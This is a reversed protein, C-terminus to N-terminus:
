FYVCSCCFLVESILTALLFVCCICVGNLFTGYSGFRSKRYYLVTKYWNQLSTHSTIVTMKELKSTNWFTRSFIVAGWNIKITSQLQFIRHPNHIMLVVIFPCANTLMIISFTKILGIKKPKEVFSFIHQSRYFLSFDVIVLCCISWWTCPHHFADLIKVDM